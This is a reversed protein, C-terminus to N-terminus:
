SWESFDDATAVSETTTKERSSHFDVSVQENFIDGIAKQIKVRFESNNNLKEIYFNNASEFVVKKGKVNPKTGLFAMKGYSPLEAKEAIAKMQAEIQQPTFASPKGVPAHVREYKVDTSSSSEKKTSPTKESDGEFVFGNMDDNKTEAKPAEKPKPVPSPTENKVEEKKELKQPKTESTAEKPLEPAPTTTKKTPPPSVSVKQKGEESLVHIVAIEFPLEVIPTTKLRAVAKETEDIVQLVFDLSQNNKIHEHMKTRLFALLDHGFTRFDGGRQNIGRLVDFAAERNGDQLSKYFSELTETTSMGLSTVVAEKTIVNDTEAAIQDLLSIADRLGGEAKRAILSLADEEFTFKEETCIYQLRKELQEMTFRHFVFNQCRSIITDPLKHMETTALLFFAHSPPEELTKLLANFAQTTLMHVEDIIYVKKDAVNPAFKIKERLDRIEDIGRNSAGDIEIVDVLSGNAIQDALEKQKKADTINQCILGKAFIRATSTKGTGRSGAFLYAHAPNKAKLANQLTRITSDQGVVDAFTQPRYKLFLAM